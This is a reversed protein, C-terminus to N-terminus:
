EFVLEPNVPFLLAGHFDIVDRHDVGVDQHNASAGGARHGSHGGLLLVWAQVDHQQFFGVNFTGAGNGHAHIAQVVSYYRAMGCGLLVYLFYGDGVIAHHV